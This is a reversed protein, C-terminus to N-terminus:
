QLFPLAIELGLLFRFGNTNYKANHGNEKGNLYDVYSVKPVIAIGLYKFPLQYGGFAGISFGNANAENDWYWKASYSLDNIYSLEGGLWFPSSETKRRGQIGLEAYTDSDDKFIYTNLGAVGNLNWNNNIPLQGISLAAGVGPKEGEYGGHIAMKIDHCQILPVLFITILWKAKM